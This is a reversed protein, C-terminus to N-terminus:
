GSQEEEEVKIMLQTVRQEPATREPDSLYGERLAGGVTHGHECTWALLADATLSLQDYSGVHTAIALL